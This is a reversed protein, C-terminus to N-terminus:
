IKKSIINDNIYEKANKEKLRKSNIFNFCTFSSTFIEQNKNSAVM